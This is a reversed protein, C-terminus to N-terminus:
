ARGGVLLELVRDPAIQPARLGEAALRCVTAATMPALVEIRRGSKFRALEVDIAKLVLAAGTVEPDFEVVVGGRCAICALVGAPRGAGGLAGAIPPLAQPMAPFVALAIIPEDYLRARAGAGLAALADRIAITEGTEILAYTREVSASSRWRVCGGALHTIEDRRAQSLVGAISLTAAM